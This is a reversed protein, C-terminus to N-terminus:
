DENRDLPKPPQLIQVPYGQNETDGQIEGNPQGQLILSPIQAM